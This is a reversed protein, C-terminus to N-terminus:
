SAPDLDIGGMLKRGPEVFEVPTYYEFDGSTQNVLSANNVTM